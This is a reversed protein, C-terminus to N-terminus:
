DVAANGRVDPARDYRRKNALYANLKSELAMHKALRELRRLDLLSIDFDLPPGSLRTWRSAGLYIWDLLAKEPTARPYTADVDLRDVSSGAREDLLRVPMAHFRFETRRAIVPRSSQAIGKRIPLVATVIDPYNNTIGAEGLVTQLSVIAGGRVHAAAEASTPTPQAIQNLYLGRTVQRLAGSDIQESIWRFLTGRAPPRRKDALAAAIMPVTLIRPADAGLLIPTTRRTM